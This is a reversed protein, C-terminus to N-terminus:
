SHTLSIQIVGTLRPSRVGTIVIQIQGSDMAGSNYFIYDDIIYGPDFDNKNAASVNNSPLLAFFGATLIAIITIYYKM